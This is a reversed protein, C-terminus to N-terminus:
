NESGETVPFVFGTMLQWITKVIRANRLLLRRLQKTRDLRCSTTDKWHDAPSFRLITGENKVRQSPNCIRM